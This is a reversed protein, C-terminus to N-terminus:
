TKPGCVPEAGFIGVFLAVQSIELSLTAAQVRNRLAGSGDRYLWQRATSGNDSLM